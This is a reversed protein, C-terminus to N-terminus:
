HNALWHGVVIVAAWFAFSLGFSLGWAWLVDTRVAHRAPDPATAPSRRRPTVSHSKHTTTCNSGVGVQPRKVFLAIARDEETDTMAQSIRRTWVM